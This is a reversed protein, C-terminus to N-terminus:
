AHQALWGELILRASISDVGADRWADLDRSRGRSEALLEGRAEFSTLREDWLAVPLGFRGELRRSFKKARESMPAETGDMNLPLGVLLQQPQWERILKGVQAWDPVGDRAKLATLPTGTGTVSQGVAIGIYRLGYDFALVTIPRRAAGERTVSM